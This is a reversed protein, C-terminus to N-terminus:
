NLLNNEKNLRREAFLDALDDVLESDWRYLGVIEFDENVALISNSLELNGFKNNSRYRHKVVYCVFSNDSLFPELEKLRNELRVVINPSSQWRPLLFSTDDTLKNALDKIELTDDIAAEIFEYSKPDDFNKQVFALMNVRLDDSKKVRLSNEDVASDSSTNKCSLLMCFSLIVLFFSKM